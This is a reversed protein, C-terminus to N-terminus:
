SQPNNWLTIRKFKVHFYYNVNTNSNFCLSPRSGYWTAETPNALIKVYYHFGLPEICVETKVADRVIYLVLKGLTEICAEPKYADTGACSASSLLRSLCRRFDNVITSPFRACTQLESNKLSFTTHVTLLQFKVITAASSKRSLSAPLMNHCQWRRVPNPHSKDLSIRFRKKKKRRRRKM